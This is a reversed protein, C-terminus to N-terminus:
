RSCWLEKKKWLGLWDTTSM